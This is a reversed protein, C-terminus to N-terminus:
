TLDAMIKKFVKDDGELIERSKQTMDDFSLDCFRATIDSYLYGM